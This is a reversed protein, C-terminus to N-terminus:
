ITARSITCSLDNCTERILKQIDTITITRPEALEQRARKLGEETWEVQSTSYRRLYGRRTAEEVIRAKEGKPDIWFEDGKAPYNYTIAEQISRVTLKM